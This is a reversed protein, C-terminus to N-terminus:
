AIPINIEAETIRLQYSCGTHCPIHLHNTQWLGSLTVNNDFDSIWTGEVQMIFRFPVIQQSPHLGCSDDKLGEGTDLHAECVACKKLSPGLLSMQVTCQQTLISIDTSGIASYGQM